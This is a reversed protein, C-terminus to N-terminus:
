DHPNWSEITLQRSVVARALQTVSRGQVFALARLRLLADDVSIGLEVSVMGCANHVIASHAWPASPEVAVGVEDIGSANDPREVALTALSALLQADATQDPELPGARRNYIDLTGIALGGNVLPFAFVAAIGRARVASSFAPWRGLADSRTLDPHSALQFSALADLCPGEGLEFQLSSIMATEADSADLVQSEGDAVASLAAGDVGVQAVCVKCLRHLVRATDDTGHLADLLRELRAQDL